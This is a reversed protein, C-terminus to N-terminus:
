TKKRKESRARAKSDREAELEKFEEIRADLEEIIRRQLDVEKMLSEVIAVGKVDLQYGHTYIGDRCERKDYFTIGPNYGTVVFGLEEMGKIIPDYKDVALWFNRLRVSETM